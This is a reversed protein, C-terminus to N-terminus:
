NTISRSSSKPRTSTLPPQNMASCQILQQCSDLALYWGMLATTATEKSRATLLQLHHTFRSPSRYGPPNTQPTFAAGLMELNKTVKQSTCPRM